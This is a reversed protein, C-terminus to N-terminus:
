ETAISIQAGRKPKRRSSLGPAVWRGVCESGGVALLALLSHFPTQPFRIAPRNGWLIQGSPMCMGLRINGRPQPPCRGGCLDGGPSCEGPV